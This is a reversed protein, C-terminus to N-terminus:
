SAKRFEEPQEMNRAAKILVRLALNVSESDPFVVRMDPDLSVIHVDGALGAYPARVSNSFDYEDRMDDVEAASEPQTM